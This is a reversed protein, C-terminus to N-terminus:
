KKAKKPALATEILRQVWNGMSRGEQTAARLLEDYLKQDLRVAVIPKNSPM